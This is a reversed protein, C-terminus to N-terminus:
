RSRSCCLHRCLSAGTRQLRSSPTRSLCNALPVRATPRPPRVPKGPGSYSWATPRSQHLSRIWVWYLFTSLRSMLSVTPGPVVPLRFNLSKRATLLGPLFTTVRCRRSRARSRSSSNGGSLSDKNTITLNEMMSTYSGARM